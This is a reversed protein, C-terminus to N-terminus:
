KKILQFVIFCKLVRCIHAAPKKRAARWAPADGRPFNKVECFMLSFIERVAFIIKINQALQLPSTPLVMLVTRHFVEERRIAALHHCPLLV